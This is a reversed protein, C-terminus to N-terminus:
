LGKRKAECAALAIRKNMDWDKRRKQEAEAQRGRYIIPFLGGDTKNLFSNRRNGFEKKFWKLFTM